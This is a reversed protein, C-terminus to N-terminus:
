ILTKIVDCCEACVTHEEELTVTTIKEDKFYKRCRQCEVHDFKTVHILGSETEIGDTLTNDIIVESVIFLLELNNISNLLEGVEKRPNIAISCELSKGVVKENRLVEIAKNVDHRVERFNDYKAVLSDNMQGSVTPFDVLFISEDKFLNYGEYTTHPLIPAMLKLIADVHAFLVSQIQRRRVDNSETIYVVDKIFDLYFSSLEITIYNNITDVVKKFEYTDFSTVCEEIVKDLKLMMYQDIEGLKDFEVNHEDYNFDDLNGLMFRVTNRFRRYVESVQTLIDDSVRVDSNYDATAVWLRLIDAGRTSCIQKPTIVNGISKSMKIGKGDLVFGHSLLKKYPTKNECIFGTIISSNFWGRYQDSGELYLDAQYEGVLRKSAATHASGSDFWVDMIDTEKTFLGNPSDPHTYGDPLLDKAEREFWINSGHENFLSAVHEILTVDIIPEDNEAYFIPIPVGWKRQRSICWEDRGKIMNYLRVRGWDHQYEINNNIEELLAEKVPGISAFWQATARFIVPKKTRWDHPYSHKFFTLDLLNGTSELKMGIEKNADEYFLGEFELANENMKGYADVLSEVEIGYKKGILFDDEGHGPAIHVIGTGSDVTVHHGIMVKSVRDLFPHKVDINELDRGLFSDVIDVNSFGIKSTFSEILDTAVLYKKGDCNLLSYSFDEGVAVGRNGPITWPTTTWIVVSADKFREDNLLQMSVYIAASTKEQYEIEAEALASQSTPSWYVPKLGKYILGENVMKGFVRIQEAEYEKELTLYYEDEHGLIGLTFFQERQNEVQQLAYKECELRFEATTIENVKVKGKKLLANEIPLGHTDWGMIFPAKYGSMNRSRIVFDKLTKNLAHGVHLDGNAYPPGDPLVFLPKGENKKMVQHYVDSENWEKQFMPERTPLSAKMNFATNPMNLTDKLKM